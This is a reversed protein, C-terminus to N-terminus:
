PAVYIGLRRRMAIETAMRRLRACGCHCVGLGDNAADQVIAYLSVLSNSPISARWWQITYGDDDYHSPKIMEVHFTKAVFRRCPREYPCGRTPTARSEPGVVM